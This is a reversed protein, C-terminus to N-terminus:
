MFYNKLSEKLVFLILGGIGAGILGTILGIKILKILLSTYKENLPKIEDRILEEKFVRLGERFASRDNAQDLKIETTEKVLKNECSSFDSRLKEYATNLKSLSSFVYKIWAKRLEAAETAHDDSHGLLDESTGFTDILENLRDDSM